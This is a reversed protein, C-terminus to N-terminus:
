DSTIAFEPCNFIMLCVKVKCALQFLLFIVNLRSQNMTFHVVKATCFM